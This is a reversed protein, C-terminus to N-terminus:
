QDNNIKELAKALIAEIEQQRTAEQSQLKKAVETLVAKFQEEKSLSFFGVILKAVEMLIMCVQVVISVTLLLEASLHSTGTRGDAIRRAQRRAEDADDESVFEIVVAQALEGLDM